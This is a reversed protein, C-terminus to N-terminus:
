PQKRNRVNLCLFVSFFSILTKADRIRMDTKAMGPESNPYTCLVSEIWFSFTKVLVLTYIFLFINVVELFRSVGVNASVGVVKASM